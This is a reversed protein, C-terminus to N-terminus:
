IKIDINNGKDSNIEDEKKSDVINNNEKKKGKYRSKDKREEREHVFKKEAALAQHVTKSYKQTDQSIQMIFDQQRNNANSQEAQKIKAVDGIKQVLVQMDISKITM